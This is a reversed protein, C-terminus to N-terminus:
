WLVTLKRWLTTITSLGCGDSKKVTLWKISSQYKIELCDKYFDITCAFLFHLNKNTEFIYWKSAALSVVAISGLSFDNHISHWINKMLIKIHAVGRWYEIDYASRLTWTSLMPGLQTWDTGTLGWAPGMFRAILFIYLKTSYNYTSLPNRHPVRWDQHLCTGLWLQM